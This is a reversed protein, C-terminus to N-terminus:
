LFFEGKEARRGRPRNPARQQSPGQQLDTPFVHKVCVRVVKLVCSSVVGLHAGTIRRYAVSLCMDAVCVETVEELM